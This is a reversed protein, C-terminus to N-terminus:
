NNENQEGKTVIALIHPETLITYEGTEDTYSEGQMKSFVVIDGIKVKLPIINGDQLLRGDGVAVVEGKLTTNNSMSMDKMYTLGASTKVEQKSLMKVVIREYLPM